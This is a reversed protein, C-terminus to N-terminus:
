PLVPINEHEDFAGIGELVVNPDVERLKARIMGVKELGTAAHYDLANIGKFLRAIVAALSEPSIYYGRNLYKTVRLMSGGADEDRIPELYYLRHAAM